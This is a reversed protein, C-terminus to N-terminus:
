RVKHDTRAELPSIIDRKRFAATAFRWAAKQPTLWEICAGQKRNALAQAALWPTVTEVTDGLINMVRKAKQWEAADESKSSYLLLDTPVMGPSLAGILVPSDKYEKALSRTFYRLGHKSSGYITLGPSMMGNSGFGEFTYIKGGGQRLMGALTEMTTVIQEVPLDALLARDTAVAANSIWIDVRGFRAVAAAWVAELSAMDRVDCVCGLVADPRALDAVASDVAAQSRGTVVVQHGLELFERALGKGIGRTSGTIVITQM